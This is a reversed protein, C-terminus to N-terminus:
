MLYLVPMLLNPKLDLQKIQIIFWSLFSAKLSLLIYDWRATGWALVSISNFLCCISDNKFGLSPCMVIESTFEFNWRKFLEPNNLKGSNWNSATLHPIASWPNAFKESHSM